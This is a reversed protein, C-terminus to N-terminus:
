ERARQSAKNPNNQAIHKPPVSNWCSHIIQLPAPEKLHKVYVRAKTEKKKAPKARAKHFAGLLIAISLIKGPLGKSM